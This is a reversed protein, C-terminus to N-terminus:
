DNQSAKITVDWVYRFTQEGLYTETFKHARPLVQWWVTWGTLALATGEALVEHVRDHIAQINGLATGGSQSRSEIRYAGRMQRHPTVLPNTEDVNHILIYPLAAGSPAMDVYVKAGVHGTLTADNQLATYLAADMTPWAVM